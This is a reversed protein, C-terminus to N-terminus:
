AEGSLEGLPIAGLDLHEEHAVSNRAGDRALLDGVAMVAEVAHDDRGTAVACLLGM